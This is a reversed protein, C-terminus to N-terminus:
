RFCVIFTVFLLTVFDHGWSSAVQGTGVSSYTYGRSDKASESSGSLCCLAAHPDLVAACSSSNKGLEFM